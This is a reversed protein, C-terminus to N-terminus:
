NLLKIYNRVGNGLYINISTLVLQTSIKFSGSFFLINM